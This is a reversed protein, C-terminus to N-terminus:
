IYLQVYEKPQLNPQTQGYTPCMKINGASKWLEPTMPSFTRSPRAMDPRRSELMNPTLMSDPILTLMYQLTLMTRTWIRCQVSPFVIWNWPVFSIDFINPYNNVFIYIIKWASYPSISWKWVSISYNVTLQECLYSYKRVCIYILKAFICTNM